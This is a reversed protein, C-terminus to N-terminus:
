DDEVDAEDDAAFPRKPEARDPESPDAQSLIIRRNEVEVRKIRVRTKGGRIVKDEFGEAFETEHLIGVLPDGTVPCHVKVFVAWVSMLTIEGDLWTERSVNLFGRADATKNAVYRPPRELSGKRRTLFFKGRECVDQEKDLLRVTINDGPKWEFGEVPFGDTFEEVELFGDAQAGVDVSVGGPYYLQIVKGHLTQGIELDSIPTRTKGVKSSEPFTKAKAKGGAAAERSVSSVQRDRSGTHMMAVMVGPGVAATNRAALSTALDRSICPVVVFHQRGTAFCAAAAAAAVCTRTKCSPQPLGRRSPNRLLIQTRLPHRPGLSTWPVGM